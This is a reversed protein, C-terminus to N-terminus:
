AAPVAPAALAPRSPSGTFGGAPSGPAPLLKSGAPSAGGGPAPSSAAICSRFGTFVRFGPCAATSSTSTLRPTGAPNRSTVRKRGSRSARGMGQTAPIAAAQAMPRSAINSVAVRGRRPSTNGSVARAPRMVTATVAM